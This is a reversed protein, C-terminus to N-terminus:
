SAREYEKVKLWWRVADRVEDDSLMFGEKLIELQNDEALQGM